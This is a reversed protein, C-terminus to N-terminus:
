ATAGAAERRGATRTRVGQARWEDFAKLRGGPVLPDVRRARRSGSPPSGAGTRGHFFEPGLLRGFFGERPPTSDPSHGKRSMSRREGRGGAPASGHRPRYTWGRDSHLTSAARPPPWHAGALMEAVLAKSPSTGVSFAAVDGDFLDVAPSLGVKRPDDPLRFETIDTVLVRRPRRGLLRAPRPRRRGAAPQAGRPGGRRRLLLPGGAPAPACGEGAM